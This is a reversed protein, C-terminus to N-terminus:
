VYELVENDTIKIYNWKYVVFIGIILLLFLFCGLIMINIMFPSSQQQEMPEMTKLNAFIPTLNMKPDFNSNGCNCM